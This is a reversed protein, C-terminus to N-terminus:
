GADARFRIEAGAALEITAGDLLDIFEDVRDNRLTRLRFKAGRNALADDIATQIYDPILEVVKIGTKLTDASLNMTFEVEGDREIQIRLRRPERVRTFPVVTDPERRRGESLIADLLEEAEDVTIKGQALLGLIKKRAESM